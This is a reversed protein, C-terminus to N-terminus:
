KTDNYIKELKRFKENINLKTPNYQEINKDFLSLASNLLYDCAYLDNLHEKIYALRIITILHRKSSLQKLPLYKLSLELLSDSKEFNHLNYAINAQYFLIESKKSQETYYNLTIQFLSDAKIYKGYSMNILASNFNALYYCNKYDSNFIKNIKNKDYGSYIDLIKNNISDAKSINKKSFFIYAKTSLLQQLRYSTFDNIQELQYIENNTLNYASDLLNNNILGQIKNYKIQYEFMRYSYSDKKYILSAITKSNAFILITSILILLSSKLIFYSVYKINFNTNFFSRFFHLLIILLVFFLLIIISFSLFTNNSEPASLKGLIYTLNYSILIGSLISFILHNKFKIESQYIKFGFIFNYIINLCIFIALVASINENKLIITLAILIITLTDIISNTLKMKKYNQM